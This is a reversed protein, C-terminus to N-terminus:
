TGSVLDINPPSPKHSNRWRQDFSASLSARRNCLVERRERVSLKARHAAITLAVNANCAGAGERGGGERM